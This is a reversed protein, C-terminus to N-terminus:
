LLLILKMPMVHYSITKASFGDRAMVLTVEFLVLKKNQDVHLKHGYYRPRYPIPNIRDLSNNYREEYSIPDVVKLAFFTEKLFRLDKLCYM